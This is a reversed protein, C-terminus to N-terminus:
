FEGYHDRSGIDEVMYDASAWVKEGDMYIAQVEPGTDTDYHRLRLEADPGNTYTHFAKILDREEVVYAGRDRLRKIMPELGCTLWRPQDPVLVWDVDSDLEITWYFGLVKAVNASATPVEVYGPTGAPLRAM